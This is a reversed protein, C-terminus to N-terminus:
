EETAVASWMFALVDSEEDIVKSLPKGGGHGAKVDVRILVPHSCGQAAQLAAAFKLSHGPVVRDDHDATTILTPPYCVGPKLNHLPSYKFLYDFATPDDSNGYDPEWAWGITFKHYRLMDLVGVQAVAAGLLDPRQTIAAGVLLGGNSGGVIALKAPNTYRESILTEAAAFFDDFVNQKRERTGARHWAEGYEGGGRLNPQAFVGGQEVWSLWSASFEPTRSINFGGYGTLYTPNKGELKLGKKHVIFMPVRTGDKSRCFVQKTEFRDPELDVNPRRFVDNQRTALDYRYVTVPYLFSTFTYFLEARDASGALSRVSGLTPLAIEGEPKGDLRAIRLQNKADVLYVMVLKGGAILARELSDDAQPVVEQIAERKAEDLPIAIIKSRPADKDTVLLLRQDVVGLPRYEAEFRAIIRHFPRDLDPELPNALDKVYVLNHNDARHHIEVIVYRGDETTRADLLSDPQEPLELVLADQEQRQGLRHYYLKQNLVQASSRSSQPEPFRCYFFGKGDNTWSASTFKLWRLLDPRDQCTEVERVHMEGWDSGSASTMYALLRGDRSPTTSTLAVSGDESLANPDLLVQPAEALNTTTLLVSQNQLGTNRFFFYRDGEHDPASFREFDLLRHLRAKFRDREPLRHLYAFTLDNQKEIWARTEASDTDELWRYPDPVKTGHYDDAVGDKRTVPYPSIEAAAFCSCGVALFFCLRWIM